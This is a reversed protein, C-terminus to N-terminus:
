DEQKGVNPFMELIEEAMVNWAFKADEFTRFASFNRYNDIHEKDMKHIKADTTSIYYIEPSQSIHGEYKKDLEIAIEKLVINFAAVPSIDKISGLWGNAKEFKWGKREAVKNIYYVIHGVAQGRLEEKSDKPESKEEGETSFAKSLEEDISEEIVKLLESVAEKLEPAKIEIHRVM